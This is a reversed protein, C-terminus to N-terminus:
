EPLDDPTMWRDRLPALTPTERELKWEHACASCRVTVIVENASHSQVSCAHGADAECRPCRLPSHWDIPAMPM